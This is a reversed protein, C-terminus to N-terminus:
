QSSISMVLLLATNQRAVMLANNCVSILEELNLVNIHGYSAGLRM